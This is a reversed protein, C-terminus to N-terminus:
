SRRVLAGNYIPSEAFSPVLDVAQDLPLDLGPISTHISM